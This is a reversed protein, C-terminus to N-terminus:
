TENIDVISTETYNGKWLQKMDIKWYDDVSESVNKDTVGVGYYHLLAYEKATEIVDCDIKTGSGIYGCDESYYDVIDLAGYNPQVDAPNPYHLFFTYFSITDLDAFSIYSEGDIATAGPMPRVSLTYKKDFLSLFVAAAIVIVAAIVALIIFLKKSKAKM